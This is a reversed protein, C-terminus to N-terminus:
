RGKNKALKWAYTIVLWRENTSMVLSFAPMPTRKVGQSVWHFVSEPHKTFADALTGDSFSPARPEIYPFKKGYGDGNVGHCGACSLGQYSQAYLARGTEMVAPDNVPFPNQKPSLQQKLMKLGPPTSQETTTPPCGALLFAALSARFFWSM